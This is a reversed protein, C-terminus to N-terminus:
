ENTISTSAIIKKLEEANGLGILKFVEETTADGTSPATNSTDEDL